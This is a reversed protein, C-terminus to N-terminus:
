VISKGREKLIYNLIQKDNKDATKQADAAGYERPYSEAFDRFFNDLAKARSIKPHQKEQMQVYREMILYLKNNTSLHTNTMAKLLAWRANMELSDASKNLDKRDVFTPKDHSPSEVIADHALKLLKDKDDAAAGLEFIFSPRKVTKNDAM